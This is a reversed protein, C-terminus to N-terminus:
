IIWGPSRNGGVSSRAENYNGVKTTLFPSLNPFELTSIGERM